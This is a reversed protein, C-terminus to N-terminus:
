ECLEFYQQELQIIESRVKNELERLASNIKEVIEADEIKITTLAITNAVLYADESSVNKIKKLYDFKKLLENLIALKANNRDLVQLSEKNIM